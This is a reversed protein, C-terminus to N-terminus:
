GAARLRVGRESLSLTYFDASNITECVEDFTHEDLRLVADSPYRMVNGGNRHFSSIMPLEHVIV